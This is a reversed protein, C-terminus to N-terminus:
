FEATVNVNESRLFKATLLVALVMGVFIKVHESTVVFINTQSSSIHQQNAVYATAAKTGPPPRSLNPKHSREVADQTQYLGEM